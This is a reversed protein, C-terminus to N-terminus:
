NYVETMESSISWGSDWRDEPPDQQVYTFLMKIM